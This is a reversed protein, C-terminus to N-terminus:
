WKFESDHQQRYIIESTDTHIEGGHKSSMKVDCHEMGGDKLRRMAEEQRDYDTKTFLEYFFNGVPGMLILRTTRNDDKKEPLNTNEM